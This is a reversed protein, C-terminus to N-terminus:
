FDFGGMDMMGFDPLQEASAGDPFNPVDPVTAAFAVRWDCCRTRVIEQYTM